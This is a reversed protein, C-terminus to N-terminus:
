RWVCDVSAAGLFEGVCTQLIFSEDGFSVITGAFDFIVGNENLGDFPLSGFTGM